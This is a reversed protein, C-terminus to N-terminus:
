KFAEPTGQIFLEFRPKNLYRTAGINIQKGNNSIQFVREHRNETYTETFNSAREADKEILKDIKRVLAPNDERVEIERFYNNQSKVTTISIGKKGNYTGDFLSEVALQPPKAYAIMACVLMSLTLLSKKMDNCINNTNKM